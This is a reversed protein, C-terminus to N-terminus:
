ARLDAWLHHLDFVSPRVSARNLRQCANSVAPWGESSAPFAIQPIQCRTAAAIHENVEALIASPESDQLYGIMAGSGVGNGYRHDPSLFRVIGSVVYQETLVWGRSTPNGLRKSEIDLDMTVEAPSRGHDNQLRWKFDPKRRVWDERAQQANLPTHEAKPFLALSQPRQSTPLHFYAERALVLLHRDLEEEAEPLGSLAHLRELALCLVALVREVHTEWLSSPSPLARTSM